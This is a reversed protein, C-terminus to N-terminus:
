PRNQHHGHQWGVGPATGITSTCPLRSVSAIQASYRFLPQELFDKPGRVPIVSPSDTLEHWACLAQGVNRQLLEHFDEPVLQQM